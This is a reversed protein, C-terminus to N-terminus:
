SDVEIKRKGADIAEVIDGVVPRPCIYYTNGDVCVAQTWGDEYNIKVVNNTNLIGFKSIIWM